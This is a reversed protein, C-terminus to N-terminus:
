VHRRPGSFCGPLNIWAKEMDTLNLFSHISFKDLTTEQGYSLLSVSRLGLLKRVRNIGM